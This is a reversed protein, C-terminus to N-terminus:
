YGWRRESEREARANAEYECHDEYLKLTKADLLSVDVVRVKGSGRCGDCQTDYFGSMYNEGFDPDDHCAESWESQTFAEGHLTQTGNGECTPCIAWRTPLTIELGDEDELIFPETM